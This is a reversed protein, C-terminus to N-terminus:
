GDNNISGVSDYSTSRLGYKMVYLTVVTGAIPSGQTDVVRGSCTIQNADKALSNEGAAALMLITLIIAVRSGPLIRRQNARM